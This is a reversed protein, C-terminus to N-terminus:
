YEWREGAAPVFDGVDAEILRGLSESREGPAVFLRGPVKQYLIRRGSVDISVVRVLRPGEKISGFVPPAVEIWVV